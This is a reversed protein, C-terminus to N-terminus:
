SEHKRLTKTDFENFYVNYGDAILRGCENVADWMAKQYTEMTLETWMMRGKRAKNCTHEWELLIVGGNPLKIMPEPEALLMASPLVAAGAALAPISKIFARRNM